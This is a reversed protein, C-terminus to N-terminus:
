FYSINERANDSRLTQINTKFQNQIETHFDYFISFVESRQKMLFLWTVRSYDDVFTVFYKFGSKSITSSPGWIDSHILEFLASGRTNIRPKSSSCHLKAYQCPECNLTSIYNYQPCLHKFLTLSPHGLQQHVIIASDVSSCAVPLTDLIYLGGSEYGKGITQRTM